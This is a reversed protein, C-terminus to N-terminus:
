KYGGATGSDPTAGKNAQIAPLENIAREWMQRDRDSMRGCIGPVMDNLLRKIHVLRSLTLSTDKMGPRAIELAAQRCEKICKLLRSGGVAHEMDRYYEMQEQMRKIDIKYDEISRIKESILNIMKYALWILCPGSILACTKISVGESQFNKLALFGVLYILICVCILVSNKIFHM